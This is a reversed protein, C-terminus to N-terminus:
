SIDKPFTRAGEARAKKRAVARAKYLWWKVKRKQKPNQRLYM